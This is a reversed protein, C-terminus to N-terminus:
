EKDNEDYNRIVIIDSNDKNDDKNDKITVESGRGLEHLDGLISNQRKDESQGTAATFYRDELQDVCIVDRMILNAARNGVLGDNITNFNYNEKKQTVIKNSNPNRENKEWLEKPFLSEKRSTGRKIDNVTEKIEKFTYNDCKLRVKRLTGIDKEKTFLEVEKEELQKREKTNEKEDGEKKRNLIPLYTNTDRTTKEIGLEKKIGILRGSEYKIEQRENEKRKSEKKDNEKDKRDKEKRETRLKPEFIRWNEYLKKRKSPTENEKLYTIDEEEDRRKRKPTKPSEKERDTEIIKREEKQIKNTLFKKIMQEGKLLGLESKKKRGRKKEKLYDKEKREKEEREINREQIQIIREKVTIREKEELITKDEQRETKKRM